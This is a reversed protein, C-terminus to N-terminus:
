ALEETVALMAANVAVLAEKAADVLANAVHGRTMSHTITMWENVQDAADTIEATWVNVDYAAILMMNMLRKTEDAHNSANAALVDHALREVDAAAEDVAAAQRAAQEVAEEIAFMAGEDSLRKRGGKNYPSYQRKSIRKGLAVQQTRSLNSSCTRMTKPPSSPHGVCRIGM